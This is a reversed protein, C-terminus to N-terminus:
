FSRAPRFGLDDYRITPSACDRNAARCSRLDNFWSGGRIVRCYGSVASRLDTAASSSYSGYWEGHWDWCWEWVNGSMDFLGKANAQFTGVPATYEYGDTKGSMNAFRGLVNQDSTGAWKEKAGGSRAAYEWEAETPLRYGNAQWDCTTTSGSVTYCPTFGEKKSRWNCYAVADNWSIGVIPHSDNTLAAGLNKYQTDTGTTANYKSGKEQWEPAHSNTESVFQLYEKATLETKALYFDKVTVSHLPKEDSGGDGFQDGMEFTGGKILVMNGPKSGVGQGQGTPLPTAPCGEKM